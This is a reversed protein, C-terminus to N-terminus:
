VRGGQIYQHAYANFGNMGRVASALNRITNLMLGKSLDACNEMVYQMAEVPLTYVVCDKLAKATASATEGNFMAMDGLQAGVELTAIRVPQGHKEHELGVQGSYILFLGAAEDGEHILVEGRAFTQIKALSRLVNKEEASLIRKFVREEIWTMDIATDLIATM